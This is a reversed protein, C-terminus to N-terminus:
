DPLRTPPSRHHDGGGLPVARVPWTIRDGRIRAARQATYGEYDWGVKEWKLQGYARFNIYFCKGKLGKYYYVGVQNKVRVKGGAM